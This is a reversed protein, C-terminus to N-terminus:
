TTIQKIGLGGESKPVCIKEWAILAMPKTDVNGCWLFNRCIGEILRVVTKRLLFVMSWYTQYHFLIANILLLRGAYTLKKSSWESVKKKFKDIVPHCDAVSLKSAILPLGLYRVPLKGEVYGLVELIQQKTIVKVSGFFVHTKQPSVCLGSSASFKDIRERVALASEKDAHFVIIM